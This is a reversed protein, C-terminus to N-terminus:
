RATPVPGARRLWVIIVDSIMVHCVPLIMLGLLAVPFTAADLQPDVLRFILKGTLGALCTFAILWLFAIGAEPWTARKLLLFPAVAGRGLIRYHLATALGILPLSSDVLTTYRLTEGALQFLNAIVLGVVSPTAGFTLGTFVSIALLQTWVVTRTWDVGLGPRTKGQGNSTETM